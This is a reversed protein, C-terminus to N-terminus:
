DEAFWVRFGFLCIFMFSVCSCGDLLFSFWFRFNVKPDPRLLFWSWSLFILMRTESETSVNLRTSLRALLSSQESELATSLSILVCSDSDM